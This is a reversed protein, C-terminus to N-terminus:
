WEPPKPFKAAGERARSDALRFPRRGQWEVEPAKLTLRSAAAPARRRPGPVRDRAGSTALPGIRWVYRMMTM